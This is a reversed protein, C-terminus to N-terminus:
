IVLLSGFTIDNSQFVGPLPQLLGFIQTYQVNLKRCATVRLLLRDRSQFHRWTVPFSGSTVDNLRFDGPLPQLLSFVRMYYANWKRCRQLECYSATVHYSIVDRSRPHGFTVQFPRWKVPLWRSTATSPRFSTYVIYKMGVVSYWATPPLWTVPFSTM